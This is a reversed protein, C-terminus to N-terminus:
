VRRYNEDTLKEYDDPNIMYATEVLVALPASMRTLVFSACNTGDDRTKLRSIMANKITDALERAQPYYYYVSTGHKVYPDAGDPLANAHLSISFIAGSEKILEVRKYLDIFTDDERIMVPIAGEDCLAKELRKAMDLVVDAERVKTPGIAGSDYGGHGADIAVVVNKLPKHTNEEVPKRLRLVMNTGDFLFDYGFLREAPITFSLMNNKLEINQAFDCLRQPVDSVYYITVELGYPTEKLKYPVNLDTKFIYKKYNKDDAYKFKKLCATVPESIRSVETFYGDKIWFKTDKDVYVRYYSGKKADLLLSASKDLHSIRDANDDAGARLPSNDKVIQAFIFDNFEELQPSAPKLDPVGTKPTKPEPRNIKYTLITEKGEDTLSILEFHNEGYELPVTYVFAGGKYTQVKTGNIYLTKDNGINGVLFTSKANIVANNKRPYVIELAQARDFLKICCVFPLLAIILIIKLLLNKM